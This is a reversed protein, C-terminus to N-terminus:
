DLGLLAKCLDLDGDEIMEMMKKYFQPDEVRNYEFYVEDHPVIREEEAVNQYSEEWICCKGYGMEDGGFFDCSNCKKPICIKHEKHCYIRFSDMNDANAVTCDSGYMNRHVVLHKNPKYDYTVMNWKYCLRSPHAPFNGNSTKICYLKNSYESLVKIAKNKLEKLDKKNDTGWVILIIDAENFLERKENFDTKIKEDNSKLQTSSVNEYLNLMSLNNFGYMDLFKCLKTITNDSEGNHATSPNIGIAVIKEPRNTDNKWKACLFERKLSNNSNESQAANFIEIAFNKRPKEILKYTNIM